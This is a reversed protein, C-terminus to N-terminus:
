KRGYKQFATDIYERLTLRDMKQIKSRSCGSAEMLLDIGSGFGAEDAM